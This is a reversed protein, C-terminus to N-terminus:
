TINIMPFAVELSKTWEVADCNLSAAFRATKEGSQPGGSANREPRSGRRPTPMHARSWVGARCFLRWRSTQLQKRWSGWSENCCSALNYAWIAFQRARRPGSSRAASAKSALNAASSRSGTRATVAGMTAGSRPFVEVQAVSQHGAGSVSLGAGAATESQGHSGAARELRYASYIIRMRRNTRRSNGPGRHGSCGDADGRRMRMAATFEAMQSVAEHCHHQHLRRQELMKCCKRMIFGVRRGACLECLHPAAARCCRASSSRRQINKNRTAKACGPCFGRIQTGGFLRHATSSM